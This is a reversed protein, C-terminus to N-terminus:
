GPAGRRRAVPATPSRAPSASGSASTAATTTSRSSRAAAPRGVGADYVTGAVQPVGLPDNAGIEHNQILTYNRGDDFVATGDHLAPTPQGSKLKTEGARTVVTYKFGPPLALLGKPDDMLPPFPRHAPFPQQQHQPRPTAEALSPVAGVAAFGVGAAGAGAAGRLVSRRALSM